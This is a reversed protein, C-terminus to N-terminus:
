ICVGFVDPNMRACEVCVCSCGDSDKYKPDNIQLWGSVSWIEKRRCIQCVHSSMIWSVIVEFINRQKHKLKRPNGIPYRVMGFTLSRGDDFEIKYGKLESNDIGITKMRVEREVRCARSSITIRLRSGQTDAGM